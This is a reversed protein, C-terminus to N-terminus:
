RVEGVGTIEDRSGMVARSVSARQGCEGSGRDETRSEAGEETQEEARDQEQGRVPQRDGSRAAQQGATRGRRVQTRLRRARVSRGASLV